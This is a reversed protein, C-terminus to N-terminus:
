AHRRVKRARLALDDGVRVLAFWAAGCADEVVAHSATVYRAVTRELRAANEAFFAAIEDCRSPM